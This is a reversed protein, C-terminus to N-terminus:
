EKKPNEEKEEDKLKELDALYFGQEAAAWKEQLYQVHELKKRAEELQEGIVIGIKSYKDAIKEFEKAAKLGINGPNSLMYACFELPQYAFQLGTKEDVGLLAKKLEEELKIMGMWGNKTWFAYKEMFQRIFMAVDNAGFEGKESIEWKEDNFEKLAEEFEEKFQVKEEESPKNMNKESEKDDKVVTVKTKEKEEKKNNM